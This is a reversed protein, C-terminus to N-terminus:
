FVEVSDEITSEDSCQRIRTIHPMSIMAYWNSPDPPYPRHTRAHLIMTDDGFSVMHPDRILHARGSNLYVLVPKFPDATLLAEIAERSM